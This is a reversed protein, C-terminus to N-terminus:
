APPMLIPLCRCSSSSAQWRSTALPPHPAPFVHFTLMPRARPPSLADSAPRHQWNLPSARPRAASCAPSALTAPLPMLCARRTRFRLHWAPAALSVHALRPTPFIRAGHCAADKNLQCILAAVHDQPTDAPLQTVHLEVNAARAAAITERAYSLATPHSGVVLLSAGPLQLGHDGMTESVVEAVERLLHRPLDGCIGRAAPAAEVDDLPLGRM